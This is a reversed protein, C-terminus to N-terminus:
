PGVFWTESDIGSGVPRPALIAAAVVIALAMCFLVLIFSYGHHKRDAKGLNRYVDAHHLTSM